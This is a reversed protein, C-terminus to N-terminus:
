PRVSRFDVVAGAALVIRRWLRLAVSTRWVNGPGARWLRYGMLCATGYSPTTSETRPMWRLHGGGAAGTRRGPLGGDRVAPNIVGEAVAGLLAEELRNAQSQVSDILVCWVEGGDVRRREFVHRPPGEREPPYTPPFLKDGAGGAPQLRRCRRIAAHDSIAASLERISLM